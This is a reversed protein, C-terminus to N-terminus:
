GCVGLGLEAALPLCTVKGPAPDSIGPQMCCPSTFALAGQRLCHGYSTGQMPLSGRLGGPSSHKGAWITGLQGRRLLHLQCLEPHHLPSLHELIIFGEHRPGTKYVHTCIYIYIYCGAYFCRDIRLESLAAM